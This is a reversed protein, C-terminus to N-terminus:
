ESVRNKIILYVVYTAGGCMIYPLLVVEGGVIPLLGVPMTVSRLLSNISPFAALFVVAFVMSLMIPVFLKLLGM